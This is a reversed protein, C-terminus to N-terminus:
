SRERMAATTSRAPIVDVRVLGTLARAHLDDDIQGAVILIAVVAGGIRRSRGPRHHAHVDQDIKTAIIHVVTREDRAARAHM